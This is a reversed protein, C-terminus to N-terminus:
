ADVEGLLEGNVFFKYTAGQFSGLPLRISFPDIVETCIMNPDVVSYVEIQVTNRDDPSGIIVRSRFLM